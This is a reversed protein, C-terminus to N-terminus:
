FTEFLNKLAHFLLLSAHWPFNKTDYKSFNGINFIIFPREPVHPIAVFGEPEVTVLVHTKDQVFDISLFGFMISNMYANLAENYTPYWVLDSKTKFILKETNLLRRNNNLLM